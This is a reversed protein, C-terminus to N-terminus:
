AKRSEQYGPHDSWVAGLALVAGRITAYLARDGDDGALSEAVEEYEGVIARKAAVERLARLPRFRDIYETAATLDDSDFTQYDPWVPGGGETDGLGNQKGPEAGINRRAVAEDEDLRARIFAILDDM